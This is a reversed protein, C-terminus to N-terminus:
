RFLSVKTPFSSTPQCCTRWPLCFAKIFASCRELTGCERSVNLLMKPSSPHISHHTVNATQIDQLWTRYTVTTLRNFTRSITTVSSGTNTSRSGDRSVCRRKSTRLLSGSPSSELSVSPSAARPMLRLFTSWSAGSSARGRRTGVSYETQVGGAYISPCWGAETQGFRTEVRRFCTFRIEFCMRESM